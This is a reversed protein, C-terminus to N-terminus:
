DAVQFKLRRIELDADVLRQEAGRWKRWLYGALVGWVLLLARCFLLESEAHSSPCMGCLAGGFHRLNMLWFLWPFYPHRTVNPRRGRRGQLSYRSLISLLFHYYVPNHCVIIHKEHQPYGKNSDRIM